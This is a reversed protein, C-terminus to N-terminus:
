NTLNLFVGLMYYTPWRYYKEDVPEFPGQGSEAVERDPTKEMRGAQDTFNQTRRDRDRQNKPNKRFNM